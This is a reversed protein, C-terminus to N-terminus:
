NEGGKLNNKRRTITKVAEKIKIVSIGYKDLLEEPKGSEGFKDDMGIMEMPVPYHMALFEAVASGMGGMKQHDEVTVIAGCDRALKLIMTKDLPKIRHNDVVVTEIGERHLEEAAQRCFELLPGCGLIAVEDGYNPLKEIEVTEPRTLRLYSPGVIDAIELTAVRAREYDRPVEVLMNPLVRTIAIDELAEHTMGDPGTMLGTHAGVVKVNLNSCCVSVRLQDWNRGPSFVAYTVVFPIKGAAALGAAIGMMNQEAVGCEVYREPWRKAFELTRVSEQVDADLVWVKPNKEGLELLAQGFGDRLSKMARGLGKRGRRQKASKWAM